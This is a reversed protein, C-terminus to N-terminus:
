VTALTIANLLVVLLSLVAFGALVITASRDELGAWAFVLVILGALKLGGIGVSGYTDIFARAVANGEQLGLGLGVMTTVVDFVSAVIVVTWLVGDTEPLPQDALFGELAVLGEVFWDPVVREPLTRPDM